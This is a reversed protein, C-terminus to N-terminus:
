RHLQQLRMRAINVRRDFHETVHKFNKHHRQKHEDLSKEFEALADPDIGDLETASDTSPPEIAIPQISPRRSPSAYMRYEDWDEDGSATDTPPANTPSSSVFKSQRIVTYRQIISHKKVLSARKASPSESSGALSKRYVNGGSDALQGGGHTSSEISNALTQLYQLEEPRLHQTFHRKLKANRLKETDQPATETTVPPTAEEEHQHYHHYQHHPHSVSPMHGGMRSRRRGRPSSAGSSSYDSDEDRLMAQAINRVSHGAYLMNKGSRGRGLGVFEPPPEVERIGNRRGEDPAPIFLPKLDNKKTFQMPQSLDRFLRTSDPKMAHLPHQPNSTHNSVDHDHLQSQSGHSLLSGVSGEDHSFYSMDDVSGQSDLEDSSQGDFHRHKKKRDSKALKATHKTLLQDAHPCKLFIVLDTIVLMLMSELEYMNITKGRRRIVTSPCFDSFKAHIKKLFSAIKRMMRAQRNIWHIKKKTLVNRKMAFRFDQRRIFPYTPCRLLYKYVQELDNEHWTSYSLEECYRQFGVVFEQYTMVRKHGGKWSTIVDFWHLPHVRGSKFYDLLCGLLQKRQAYFPDYKEPKVVVPETLLSEIDQLLFRGKFTGCFVRIYDSLNQVLQRKDSDSMLSKERDNSPSARRSQSTGSPKKPPIPIANLKAPTSSSLPPITNGNKKIDNLQAFYQYPSPPNFGPLPSTNMYEFATKHSSLSSSQQGRSSHLVGDGGDTPLSPAQSAGDHM